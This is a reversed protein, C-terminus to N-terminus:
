GNEGPIRPSQLCALLAAGLVRVPRALERPGVCRVWEAAAESHPWAMKKKRGRRLDM